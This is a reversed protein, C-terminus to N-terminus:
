QLVKIRLKGTKHFLIGLNLVDNRAFKDPVDVVAHEIDLPEDSSTFDTQAELRIFLTVDRIRPYVFGRLHWGYVM